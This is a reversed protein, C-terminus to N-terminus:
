WPTVVEFDAEVIAHPTFAGPTSRSGEGRPVVRSVAGVFCARVRHSRGDHNAEPLPFRAVFGQRDRALETELTAARRMDIFAGDIFLQVWVEADQEAQRPRTMTALVLAAPVEVGYVPSVVVDALIDADAPERSVRSCVVELERSPTHSKPRPM